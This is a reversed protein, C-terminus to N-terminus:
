YTPYATGDRMIFIGASMWGGIFYEPQEFKGNHEFARGAATTVYIPKKGSDMCDPYKALAVDM